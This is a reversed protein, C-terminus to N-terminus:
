RAYRALIVTLGFATAAVAVMTMAIGIGQVAHLLRKGSARRAGRAVLDLQEAAHMWAIPALPAIVLALLGFFIALGISARPRAPMAAKPALRVGRGPPVYAAGGLFVTKPEPSSAHQASSARSASSAHSAESAHSAHSAHSANSANSANSAHAAHAAHAANAVNTGPAPTGIAILHADLGNAPQNTGIAILHADLGNSAPPNTGTAFRAAEPTTTLVHSAPAHASPVTRALNSAGSAPLTRSVELSRRNGLEFVTPASAPLKSPTSSSM